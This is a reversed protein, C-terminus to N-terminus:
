DSRLSESLLPEVWLQLAFIRGSYRARDRALKETPALTSAKSDSGVAHVVNELIALLENNLSRHHRQSHSTLQVSLIPALNNVVTQAM